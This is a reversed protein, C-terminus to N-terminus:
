GQVPESNEKASSSPSSQNEAETKKETVEESSDDHKKVAAAKKPKGATKTAFSLKTQQTPAPKPGDPKGFFKSCFAAPACDAMPRILVGFLTYYVRRLRSAM